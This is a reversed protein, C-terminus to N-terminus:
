QNKYRRKGFEEFKDKSVEFNTGNNDKIYYKKTGKKVSYDIPKEEKLKVKGATIDNIRQIFEERNYPKTTDKAARAKLMESATSDQAVKKMSSLAMFIIKGFIRFIKEVM